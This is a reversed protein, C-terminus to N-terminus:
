VMDPHDQVSTEIHDMVVIDGEYTPRPDKPIPLGDLEARQMFVPPHAGRMEEESELLFGARVLMAQATKQHM